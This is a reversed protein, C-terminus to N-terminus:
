ILIFSGQSSAIRYAQEASEAVRYKPVRIGAEELLGMSVYEHLSLYRNQTTLIPKTSTL